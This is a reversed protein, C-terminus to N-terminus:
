NWMIQIYRCSFSKLKMTSWFACDLKKLEIEETTV